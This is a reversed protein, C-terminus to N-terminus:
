NCMHGSCTLCCSSLPTEPHCVTGSSMKSWPAASMQVQLPAFVPNITRARCWKTLKRGCNNVSKDAEDSSKGYMMQPFLSKIHSNRGQRGLFADVPDSETKMRGQNGKGNFGVLPAILPPTWGGMITVDAGARIRPCVLVLLLLLLLSGSLRQNCCTPLENDATGIKTVVLM